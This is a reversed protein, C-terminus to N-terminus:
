HDTEGNDRLRLKRTILNIQTRRSISGSTMDTMDVVCGSVTM